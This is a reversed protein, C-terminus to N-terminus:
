SYHILTETTRSAQWCKTKDTNKIEAMKIPTYHYKKTKEMSIGQHCRKRHIIEM